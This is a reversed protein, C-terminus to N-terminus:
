CQFMSPLYAPATSIVIIHKPNLDLIKNINFQVAPQESYFYQRKVECLEDWTPWRNPGSVICYKKGYLELHTVHVSPTSNKPFTKIFEKIMETEKQYTEGIRKWLHLCHENINVYESKRPHVQICIENEDWFLSKLFAMEEHTPIRTDFDPKIVVMSVHEWGMSISMIAELIVGNHPILYVEQGFLMVERARDRFQELESRKRM